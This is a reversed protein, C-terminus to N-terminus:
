REIHVKRRWVREMNERTRHCGRKISFLIKNGEIMKNAVKM